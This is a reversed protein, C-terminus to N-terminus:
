QTTSTARTTNKTSTTCTTNTTSTTSTTHATSTSWSLSFPFCFSFSLPFCFYFSLPNLVRYSEKPFPKCARNNALFCLTLIKTVCITLRSFTAPTWINKLFKLLIRPVIAFRCYSSMLICCWWGERWGEPECPRNSTLAFSQVASPQLGTTGHLRLFFFLSTISHKVRLRRQLQWRSGNPKSTNQHNQDPTNKNPCSRKPAPKWSTRNQITSPSRWHNHLWTLRVLRKGCRCCFLYGAAKRTPSLACRTSFTTAEWLPHDM